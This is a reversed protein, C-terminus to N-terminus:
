HLSRAKIVDELENVVSKYSMLHLYDYGENICEFLKNKEFIDFCTSPEINWKKQALYFVWIKMNNIDRELFKGKEAM